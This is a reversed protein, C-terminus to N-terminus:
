DSLVDRVIKGSRDGVEIILHAISGLFFYITLKGESYRKGLDNLVPTTSLHALLSEALMRIHEQSGGSLIRRSELRCVRLLTSDDVDKKEKFRIITREVEIQNLYKILPELSYGVDDGIYNLEKPDLKM